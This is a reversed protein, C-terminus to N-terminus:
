PNSELKTINVSKCHPCETTPSAVQTSGVIGFSTTWTKLCDLCKMEYIM